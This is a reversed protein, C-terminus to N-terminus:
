DLFYGRLRRAFEDGDWDRVLVRNLQFRDATGRRVAGGFNSCAHDFGAERVLRVTDPTYDVHNGFPYSFARIPGALLGELTRKSETIEHRQQDVPLDSLRAHTVTHAGIDVLGGSALQRLEDATMTRHSERGEPVINLRARITDLWRTRTAADSAALAPCLARYAAHRPTPTDPSLVNWRRHAAARDPTYAADEESLTWIWPDDAGLDCTMPSALAPEDHPPALNLTKPLRGPQLLLRDLEDWFFEERRSVFGSTVFVTAPADYKELLPKAHHLNDAYGDDFTIAVPRRPRDRVRTEIGPWTFADAVDLLPLVPRSLGRALRKLVELHEAFHKPSVCLLQPDREVEAMRHYLLVLGASELRRLARRIRGVGPIRM